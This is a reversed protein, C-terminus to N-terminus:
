PAGYTTSRTASDPQCESMPVDLLQCLHHRYNTSAVEDSTGMRTAALVCIALLHLFPPRSDGGALKWRRGDREFADFYGRPDANSLGAQVAESLSSVAAERNGSPHLEALLAEDVFFLVPLQASQSGFFKRALADCWDDARWDAAEVAGM